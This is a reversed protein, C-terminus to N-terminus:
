GPERPPSRPALFRAGLRTKLALTFARVRDAWTDGALLPAPDLPEPFPEIPSGPIPPPQPPSNDGYLLDLPSVADKPLTLRLYKMTTELRQHGLAEQVQRINAGAELAHAAFTHRLSMSTVPLGIQATEAARHVIYEAMRTSLHEGERRGLFVFAGSPCSKVGERLLPLLGQPLQLSRTRGSAEITVALSGTELDIDRWRVRCAEGM